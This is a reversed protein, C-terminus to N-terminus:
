SSTEIVRKPIKTTYYCNLGETGCIHMESFMEHYVSVIAVLFLEVVLPKYQLAKIFKRLEQSHMLDCLRLKDNERPITAFVGASYGANDKDGLAMDANMGEGLAQKKGCVDITAVITHVGFEDDAIELLLETKRVDLLVEDLPTRAVWLM